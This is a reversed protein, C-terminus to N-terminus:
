ISCWRVEKWSAKPTLPVMIDIGKGGSTKLFSQLGLDDLVVLTLQTAEVM